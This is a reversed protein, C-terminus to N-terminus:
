LMNEQIKMPKRKERWPQKKIPVKAKTRTKKSLIIHRGQISYSLDNGVIQEMISQLSNAGKKVPIVKQLNLLNGTYDVSYGIQSEIADVATKVSVKAQGFKVTQASISLMPLLLFLFLFYKIRKKSIDCLNMKANKM